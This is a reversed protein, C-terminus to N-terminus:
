MHISVLTPVRPSAPCWAPRLAPPASRCIAMRNANANARYLHKLHRKHQGRPHTNVRHNYYLIYRYPRYLISVSQKKENCRVLSVAWLIFELNGSYLRAYGKLAALLVRYFIYDFPRFFCRFLILRLLLVNERYQSKNM